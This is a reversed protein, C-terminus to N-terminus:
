AALTVPDPRTAEAHDFRVLLLAVDDHPADVSGVEDIVASSSAM